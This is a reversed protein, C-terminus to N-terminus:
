AAARPDQPTSIGYPNAASLVALTKRATAEWSFERALCDRARGIFSARQEISWSMISQIQRQWAQKDEPPLLFGTEGDIIASSLGHLNSALVIGGDAAGELAVLGFGEFIRGGLPINPVIVCISTARLERLEPGFVPGLLDVRENRALRAVESDDWATGAVLLRIDGPLAPLVEDAFWGAGKFPMIRGVFLIQPRVPAPEMPPPLRVALPVVRAGTLGILAAQRATAESNAILVGITRRLLVILLLYARYFRPRIGERVHYAVDSGHLAVGIRVKRSSRRCFLALPALVLDGLLVFDYENSNRLLHWACRTVFAILALANPPQGDPRGPLALVKTECLRGLERAIERSYIEMGGVGPPWKRTIFLLSQNDAV